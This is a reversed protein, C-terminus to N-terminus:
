TLDHTGQCTVEGRGESFGLTEVQALRDGHKTDYYYELGVANVPMAGDDDKLTFDTM